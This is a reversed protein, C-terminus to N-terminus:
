IRPLHSIHCAAKKLASSNPLSALAGVGNSYALPTSWAPVSKEGRYWAARSSTNPSDEALLTFTNFGRLSYSIGKAWGMMPM